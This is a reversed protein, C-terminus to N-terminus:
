SASAAAQVPKKAAASERLQILADFAARRVGTDADRILLRIRAPADALGSTKLMWIGSVRFPASENGVLKEIAKAWEENGALYLGYVANAAVRPNADALASKLIKVAEDDKRNWLSEVLNARIRDDSEGMVGNLWALSRSQRGILLVCKSVIQPDSTRLFPRLLTLLRSENVNAGGVMGGLVDLVRFVSPLQVHRADCLNQLLRVIHLEFGPTDRAGAKAYEIAEELSFLTPDCIKEVAVAM